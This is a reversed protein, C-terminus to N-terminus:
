PQTEAPVRRYRVQNRHIHDMGLFENRSEFAIQFTAFPLNLRSPPRGNMSTYKRKLNTGDYLWTGAHIYETAQGAPDTARVTEHFSGDPALALIRRVHFGQESYERLWTGRLVEAGDESGEPALAAPSASLLLSLALLAAVWPIVPPIRAM